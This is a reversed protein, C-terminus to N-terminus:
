LAVPVSTDHGDTLEAALGVPSIGALASAERTFHPQDAFGALAAASAVSEGAVLLLAARQLRRIRGFRKPSLGVRDHFRRGLQRESLSVRAAVDAVSCGEELLAAAARTRVDAERRHHALRAALAREVIPTAVRLIAHADHRAATARELVSLLAGELREGEDRWLEALPASLDTLDGAIEPFLRAAEGPRFRIGLAASTGAPVRIATRMPGVLSARGHHVVIDMCGDPLVRHAHDNSPFAWVSSVLSRLRKEPAIERYVGVM